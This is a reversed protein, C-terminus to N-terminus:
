PLSYAYPKSKTFAYNQAVEVASLNRNYMRILGVKCNNGTIGDLLQIARASSQNSSYSGITGSVTQVGNLYVIWAGGSTMTIVYHFWNTNSINGPSVTTATGPPSIYTYIVPPNANTSQITFANTASPVHSAFILFGIYQSPPISDFKILGELTFGNTNMDVNINYSTTAYAGVVNTVSPPSANYTPTGTWTLTRGNGSLDQVTSGTQSVSFDYYAQLGNTVYTNSSNLGGGTFVSAM